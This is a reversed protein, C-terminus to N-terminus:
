PNPKAKETRKKGPRAEPHYKDKVVTPIKSYDAVVGLATLRAQALTLRWPYTDSHWMTAKLYLDLESAEQASNSQARYIEALGWHVHANNALDGTLGITFDTVPSLDLESQYETIAQAYDAASNAPSTENQAMGVYTEAMAEHVGLRLPDIMTVEQYLGIATQPSTQRLLGALRLRVTFMCPPPNLVGSTPVPTTVIQCTANALGNLSISQQYDAIAGATDGLDDQEHIGRQAFEWANTPTTIKLLNWDIRGEFYFPNPLPYNPNTTQYTVGPVYPPSTTSQGFTTVAAAFLLAARALINKGSLRNVALKRM